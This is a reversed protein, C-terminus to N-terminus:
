DYRLRRTTGTKKYRGYLNNLPSYHRCHTQSFLIAFLCGGQNKALNKNYESHRITAVYPSSSVFGKKGSPPEFSNLVRM